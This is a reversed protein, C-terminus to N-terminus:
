KISFLIEIFFFFFAEKIRLNKTKEEKKFIDIDIISNETAVIAPVCVRLAFLFGNEINM